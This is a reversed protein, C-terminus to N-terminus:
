EVELVEGHGIIKGEWLRFKVGPHMHPMVEDASLFVMPVGRAVEGPSIPQGYQHVLLRADYGHSSLQPIGDFFIPCGFARKPIPQSRGGSSRSLLTIRALVRRM